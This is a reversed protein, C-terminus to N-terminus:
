KRREKNTVNNISKKTLVQVGFIGAGIITIVILTLWIYSKAAGTTLSIIITAEASNNDQKKDEILYENFTEEIKVTNVPSVIKDDTMEKTLVLKITATEGPNLEKDALAVSYLTGDDEYWSSNLESSFKMGEPIKDSVVKAFGAIEGINTVSIEYEVLILSGKIYEGEIEVKAMNTNDFEYKETGQKNNVTVKTIGKNISMDFTKNVVFGANVNEARGASLELVETKATEENNQTTNVIDSDLEAEVEEKKYETISLSKNNYKFEVVYNGTPVNDFSYEGQSNTTKTDVIKSNETDVLTAQIGKLINENEDKRGNENKDIWAIGQISNTQTSMVEVNAPLQTQEEVKKNVANVLQSTSIQKGDESTINAYMNLTSEKKLEKTTGQIKIEVVESPAISIGNLYGTLDGSAVSFTKGTVLNAYEMKQIYLNSVDAVQLDATTSSQSNNKLTIIYEITENAELTKGAKNSIISAELIAPEAINMKASIEAQRENYYINAKITETKNIYEAVKGIVEITITEGNLIDVKSIEIKNGENVIKAKNSITFMAYGNEIIEPLNIALSVNQMNEGSINSININYKAYQGIKLTDTEQAVINAQIKEDGFIDMRKAEQNITIKSTKINENNYVDFRVEHSVDNEINMYLNMNYGFTVTQGQSFNDIVILYKKVNPTHEVSWMNEANNLDATANENETYYVRDAGAIKGMNTATGLIIANQIDSGTNNIATGIIQVSQHADPEITIEKYDERLSTIINEGIIAKTEVIIESNSVLNLESSSIGNGQIGIGDYTKANENYYHLNVARNLTPILENTKITTELLIQINEAISKTYETQEGKLKILIGKNGNELQGQEITEIEFYQNNLIIINDINVKELESPLEIIFQPNRYLDYIAKDTAMTITFNVKNDVSTSIETKDIGLEAVTKTYYISTEVTETIEEEGQLYIKKSTELKIENINELKEIKKNNVIELEQIQNKETVIKLNVSNINEPYIITIYGETDTETDKNIKVLGNEANIIGKIEPEEEPLTISEKPKEEPLQIVNREEEVPLEIVGQTTNNGEQEPLTIVEQSAQNIVVEQKNQEQDIEVETENKENEVQLEFYEIVFSGNQGIKNILETKNIKTSTYFTDAEQKIESVSEELRQSYIKANVDSVIIEKLSIENSINLTVKESYDTEQELMANKSFESIEINIPKMEEEIVQNNDIAYSIVGFIAMNANAYMLSFILLITLMKRFMKIKIM